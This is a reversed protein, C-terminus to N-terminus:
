KCNNQLITAAEAYGKTSAKRILDCGGNKNGLNYLAVGKFYESKGDTATGLSLSKDFYRIAKDYEQMNFFAIGTNEYIVYNGTIINGAQIFNNAAEQYDKKNGPAPSAKGKTFAAIGANYFANARTIQEAVNNGAVGTAMTQQIENKRQLLMAAEPDNQKEFHRYVSDAFWLLKQTGVGKAQLMGRLYYDNGFVSPRYLNYEDFAKQIGATDKLKALIAVLTQYYTKARPRTSFAKEANRRASDLKNQKFYVGAKIFESYAVYPNAISGKNLLAISEEFKGAESLYRGKIADMPQATASLNPIAPIKPFLEQYKLQLPENNMDPMIVRQIILSQYTLYTVYASPLLLLLSILGYVPTLVSNPTHGAQETEPISQRGYLYAIINVAAILVFFVQNIPREGPFNFFADVSYGVLALLSFVALLKADNAARSFYTKITFVALCVFLSLFLLGGLVGMEAFAELFDNHSHQPVFLDDTMTRIYPISAIKWNGYGCGMLPHHKTYDIAHSWLQLRVLNGSESTNITGLRDTLSGYGGTYQSQASIAAALVMQSVIIGIVISVISFGIRTILLGWNREKKNEVFCFILYLLTILFLSLYAARANALLITMAGITLIIANGVRKIVKTDHMCYLVFPIKVILGASFINKNGTTGKINLVANTMDMQTYDKLFQITAMLSEALLVFAILQALWKILNIRSYLLIAMNFFAVITAILRVFCVWFETRNIAAFVSVGALLFFALYLRSFINGFVAQAAPHYGKSAALLYAIVVMDLLVLFLWQPGMADYADLNPIFHVLLYGICFVVQALNQQYFGKHAATAATAPTNKVQSAATKQKKAM